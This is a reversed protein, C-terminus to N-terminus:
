NVVPGAFADARAANAEIRNLSLGMARVAGSPVRATEIPSGATLPADALPKDFAAKLMDKRKIM